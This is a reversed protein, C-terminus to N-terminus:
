EMRGFSTQGMTFCYGRKPKNRCKRTSIVFLLNLQFNFVERYMIYTLSLDVDLGWIWTRNRRWLCKYRMDIDKNAFVWNSMSSVICHNSKILDLFLYNWAPLMQWVPIHIDFKKLNRIPFYNKCKYCRWIFSNNHM